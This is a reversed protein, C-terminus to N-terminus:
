GRYIVKAIITRETLRQTREKRKKKSSVKM